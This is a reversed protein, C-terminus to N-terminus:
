PAGEGPKGAVLTAYLPPADPGGATVRVRWLPPARGLGLIPRLDLIALTWPTGDSFRGQILGPRLPGEALRRLVVGEAEDAAIRRAELRRVAGAATGAIEFAMITAAAAIAFAVLVEVTTFGDERARRPSM